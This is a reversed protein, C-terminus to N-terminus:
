LLYFEGMLAMKPINPITGTLFDHNMDLNLHPLFVFM